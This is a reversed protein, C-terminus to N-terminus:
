PDDHPLHLYGKIEKGRFPVKLEKLPIALHKGGERYAINAQVQAQDALEDGKLHPYSALSYYRAAHFWAKRALRKQGTEEAEKAKKVYQGALQCGYYSRIAYM